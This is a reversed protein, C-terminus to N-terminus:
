NLLLPLLAEPTPALALAGARTLEEASGYGYLVGVCPLHNVAAGEVDYKRDGVMVATAPDIGTQELAWAIVQHKESRSEDMSSGALFDFYRDLAFHELIQRSFETPKSTAVILKLGADKLRALVGPIAPYVQNELLGVTSYHERYLAVARVCRDHDMGYLDRFSDMLPPGIFPYLAEREPLPYGMRELAHMVANTIGLGPDTLTGDLDFLVSQWVM